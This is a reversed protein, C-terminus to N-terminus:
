KIKVFPVSKGYNMRSIIVACFEQHAQESFIEKMCITQVIEEDKVTYLPDEFISEEEDEDTQFM